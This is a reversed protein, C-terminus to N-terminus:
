IPEKRLSSRSIYCRVALLVRSNPPDPNSDWGKGKQTSVKRNEWRYFILSPLIVKVHHELICSMFGQRM